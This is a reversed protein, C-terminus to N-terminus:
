KGSNDGMVEELKDSLDQIATHYRTYQFNLALNIAKVVQPRQHVIDSNNLIYEVEADTLSLEGFRREQALEIANTESETLNVMSSYANQIAVEQENPIRKGEPNHSVPVRGGANVVKGRTSFMPKGRVQVKSEDPQRFFWKIGKWIAKLM